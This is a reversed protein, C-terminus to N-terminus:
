KLLMVTLTDDVFRRYYTPMKGEQELREEISCMFVSALLPGLPSGMVVGDTQEYLQGNFIFIQDKLLQQESFISLTKDMSTFNTRKMSGVMILM